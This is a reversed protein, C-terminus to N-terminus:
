CDFLSKSPRFFNLIATESRRISATKIIQAANRDAAAAVGRRATIVTISPETRTWAAPCAVATGACLSPAFAAVADNGALVAAAGNAVIIAAGGVDARVATHIHGVKGALTGITWIGSDQTYRPM